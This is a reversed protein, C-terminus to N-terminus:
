WRGGRARGGGGSSRGGFGGGFVRGGGRSGGGSGSSGWPTGGYGGGGWGGGGGRGLLINALINGIVAGAVDSGGGGSPTTVGGGRRGSSDWTSFDSSAIRYAEEALSEAQRAENVAGPPDTSALSRAYALRREAEALRTRAERGIGDRRSAVYRQARDVSGAATAFASSVAAQQRRLAEQDRQVGALAQDATANAQAALRRAELVDPPQQAWAARAAALLREAEVLRGTIEMGADRGRTGERATAIDAAAAEIEAPVKAAADDLQTALQDVADLLDTAQALAAQAAQVGARAGPRDDKTLAAQGHELAARAADIRKETEAVNGAVPARNAPAFRELRGLTANASGVRGELTGLQDRLRTLVEPANRELDRLEDFRAAQEDILARARKTREVIEALMRSRTAADEPVSDDLQQRLTFAAQLEAAASDIAARFPQAEAPTFQAEAFGLEARADRLVDDTEILLRNAERALEGTQRDREEATRQDARRRKLFSYVLWVGAGILLLPVLFSLIGGGGSSGGPTSGGGQTPAPTTVPGPTPQPLAGFATALGSTAAIVAGAFDSAALRPEIQDALIDDVERPTIEELGDSLWIADTRDDLAVVLLADNAGLSNADAVELAYDTVNFSGTTRVFLVWLQIRTRAQLDDIADEIRATQGALVNTQDTVPGTLRPVDEVAAAAGALLSLLLVILAPLALILRM